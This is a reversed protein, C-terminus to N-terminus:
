AGRVVDLVPTRVLEESVAGECIGGWIIVNVISSKGLMDGCKWWKNSPMGGISRSEIGGILM